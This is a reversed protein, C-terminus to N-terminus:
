PGDGLRGVYVSLASLLRPRVVRSEQGSGGAMHERVRRLVWAAREDSFQEGAPVGWERPFPWMRRDAAYEVGSV